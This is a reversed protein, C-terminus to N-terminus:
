ITALIDARKEKYDDDSLLRKIHELEILQEKVQSASTTGQFEELMASAPLKYAVAWPVAGSSFSRNPTDLEEMMEDAPSYHPATSVIEPDSRTELEVAAIVPVRENISVQIFHHYTLQGTDSDPPTGQCLVKELKFTLARTSADECLKTIDNHKTIDKRFNKKLPTYCCLGFGACCAMSCFSFSFFICPFWILSTWDFIHTIMFVTFIALGLYFHLVFLFSWFMHVENKSDLEVDYKDCFDIWDTHNMHGLLAGPMIRNIPCKDDLYVITVSTM